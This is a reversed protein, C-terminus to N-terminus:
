QVVGTLTLAVFATLGLVFGISGILFGTAFPPLCDDDLTMGGIVSGISFILFVAAFASM